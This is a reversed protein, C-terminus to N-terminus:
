RTRAHGTNSRRIPYYLSTERIGQRFIFGCEHDTCISADGRDVEWRVRGSLADDFFVFGVHRIAGGGAEGGRDQYKGKCGVRVSEM